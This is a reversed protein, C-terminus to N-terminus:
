FVCTSSYYKSFSNIVVANDSYQIATTETATTIDVDEVGEVVISDTDQSLNLLSIISYDFQYFYGRITDIATREAM